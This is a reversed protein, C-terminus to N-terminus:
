SSLPLSILQTLPPFSMVCMEAPILVTSTRRKRVQISGSNILTFWVTKNTNKNMGWKTAKVKDAASCVSWAEGKCEAITKEHGSYRKHMTETM